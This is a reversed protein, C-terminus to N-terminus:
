EGKEKKHYAEYKLPKRYQSDNVVRFNEIVKNRNRYFRYRDIFFKNIPKNDYKFSFAIFISTAPVLVVIKIWNDLLFSVAPKGGVLAIYFLLAVTILFIATGFLLKRLEIGNAFELKHIRYIKIPYKFFKTYNFNNM